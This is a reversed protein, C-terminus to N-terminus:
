KKLLQNMDGGCAAILDTTILRNLLVITNTSAELYVQRAQPMLYM